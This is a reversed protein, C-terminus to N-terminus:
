VQMATLGRTSLRALVGILLGHASQSASCQKGWVHHEVAKAGVGCDVALAACGKLLAKM